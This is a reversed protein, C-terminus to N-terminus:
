LGRLGPSSTITGGLKDVGSAFFFNPFILSTFGYTGEKIRISVRLCIVTVQPVGIYAHLGERLFAEAM